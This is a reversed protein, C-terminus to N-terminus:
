PSKSELRKQIEWVAFRTWRGAYRTKTDEKNLHKAVDELSRGEATLERIRRMCFIEEEHPLRHRGVKKLGFPMRGKTPFFLVETKDTVEPSAIEKPPMNREKEALRVSAKALLDLIENFREEPTMEDPDLLLRHNEM